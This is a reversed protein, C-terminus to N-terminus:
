RRPVGVAELRRRIEEFHPDDSAAEQPSPRRHAPDCQVRVTLEVEDAGPVEHSQYLAPTEAVIETWEAAGPSVVRDAFSRLEKLLEACRPCAPAELKEEGHVAFLRVEFGVVEHQEGADVTDPEVDYHVHHERAFRALAERDQLEM